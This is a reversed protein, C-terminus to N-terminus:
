CRGVFACFFFGDGIRNRWDDSPGLELNEVTPWWVELEKNNREQCDGETVAFVHIEDSLQNGWLYLGLAVSHMTPARLTPMCESYFGHASLQVCCASPFRASELTGEMDHTPVELIVTFPAAKKAFCV